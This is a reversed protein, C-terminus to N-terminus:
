ECPTETTVGDGIAAPPHPPRLHTGSARQFVLGRYLDLYTRAMREASFGLAHARAAASMRARLRADRALREIAQRLADVDDPHVYFAADDWLERLSDIDGLVLACGSLAAELVSLGFPEYRAPFAYISARAMWKHLSRPDLWGLVRVGRCCPASGEPDSLSGAVYIPWPSRPAVSALTGLNKAPDWLRGAAMVFPEKGAIPWGDGDVGNPIVKGRAPAGYHERLASLMARTPAVVADAVRLAKSVEEHYRAYIRPATERHVAKWWSSVCSHAVILRPAQWRLQAHAYGNLHVVDPHARQELALLWNGALRVDKWPDQMWELKFRSEVVHLQPIREAAARQAPRLPAGMTALTTRVGARALQTALALAYTWVGGVPDATMLVHRVSDDSASM